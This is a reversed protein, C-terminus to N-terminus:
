HRKITLFDNMFNNLFRIICIPSYQPFKEFTDKELVEVLLPVIETNKFINLDITEDIPYKDLLVVAIYRQLEDISKLKNEIKPILLKFQEITLSKLFSLFYFDVADPFMMLYPLM